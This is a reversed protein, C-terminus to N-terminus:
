KILNSLENKLNDLLPILHDDKADRLAERYGKSILAKAQTRSFGADRLFDEFERESPMGGDKLIQKVAGVRALENAPFTVVSIEWLKVEELYNLNQEKDHRESKVSYGISLGDLAGMKLLEYTEAGRQTKIALNGNMLLGHDDEKMGSVTGIVERADHQWLLPVSKKSEALFSKFAGPLIVDRYSDVNGFVAGYGEFIGEDSLLKLEFTVNKKKIEM